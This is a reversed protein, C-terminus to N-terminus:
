IQFRIYPVFSGKWLFSVFEHVHLVSKHNGLPLPFFHSSQSKTNTSAFWQMQLPYAIPNQQIACPVMDLWKHHFMISSLTFFLIYIFSYSPWKATRRFTVCCQLDVIIFIKKFLFIFIYLFKSNCSVSLPHFLRM